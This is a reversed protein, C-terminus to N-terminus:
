IKNGHHKIQKRTAIVILTEIMQEKLDHITISTVTITCKIHTDM